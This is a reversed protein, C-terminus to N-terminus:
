DDIKDTKNDDGDITLNVSGKTITARRGRDIAAGIEGLSAFAFVEGVGALVSPEIIGLPPIIFSSILLTISTFLCIFFVRKHFKDGFFNDIWRM